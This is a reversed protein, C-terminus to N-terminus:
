EEKMQQAQAAAGSLQAQMTQGNELLSDQKLMTELVDIDTSIDLMDNQYLTNLQKKFASLVVDMADEIKQKTDEAYRGSMKEEEIRRYGTLMKLTTPLYYDMFRRIQPAKEPKEIVQRFIKNAVSDMEDMQRSLMPDPIRDNERRIAALMEQGRRVVRDVDPDGTIPMEKQKPAEKSTDLGSGMVYAIYGVLLSVGGMTLFGGLGDVSFIGKYLFAAVAASLGGVVVGKLPSKSQSYRKAM